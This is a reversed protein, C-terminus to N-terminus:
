SNESAARCMCDPLRREYAPQIAAPAATTMAYMVHIPVRHGRKVARNQRQDRKHRQSTSQQQEERRTAVTVDANAREHDREESENERQVQRNVKLVGLGSKLVFDVFCPDRRGVDM